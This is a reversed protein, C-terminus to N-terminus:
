RLNSLWHILNSDNNWDPLDADIIDPCANQIAARKTEIDARTYIETTKIDVHGLFDRIYILNIDANLLHMAKSHRFMHPTIKHPLLNAHSKKKVYKNIIYAIGERTLKEGRSNVFIPQTNKYPNSLSNEKIYMDILRATQEMIPVRRQKDGKGKLLITTPDSIAVDCVKIDILEQVRAGTDYLTSLLTLDRRGRKTTKDPQSLLYKMAKPTLYEVITNPVKKFPISLIKHFNELLTPAEYQVYRFFSHIAALRQNRTSIACMRKNEIWNLFGLITNQDLSEITIREAPLHEINKVYQLLLKFTDRYSYITNKSVNRQQPLYNTFYKTLYNAFDTSKM